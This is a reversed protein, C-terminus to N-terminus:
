LEIDRMTERSRGILLDEGEHLASMLAELLSKKPATKEQKRYAEIANRAAELCVLAQQNMSRRNRAAEAKLWDHLEQPANKVLIASM